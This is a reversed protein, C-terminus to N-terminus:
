SNCFHSGIVLTALRYVQSKEFTAQDFAAKVDIFCANTIMKTAFDEVSKSKYGDHSVAAIIADACPLDEWVTLQVGYEHLAEDPDGLIM